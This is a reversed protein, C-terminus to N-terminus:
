LLYITDFVAPVSLPQSAVVSSFQHNYSRLLRPFLGRARSYSMFLSRPTSNKKKEREARDNRRHAATLLCAAGIYLTARTTAAAKGEAKVNKNMIEKGGKPFVQWLSSEAHPIIDYDSLFLSLSNFVYTVTVNREEEWFAQSNKFSISDGFAEEEKDWLDTQTAFLLLHVSLLLFAVWNVEDDKVRGERGRQEPVLNTAMISSLKCYLRTQEKRLHLSLM